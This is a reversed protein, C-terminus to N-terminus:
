CPLPLIEQRNESDEYHRVANWRKRELNNRPTIYAIKKQKQM